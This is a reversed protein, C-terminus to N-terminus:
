VQCGQGLTDWVLIPELNSKTPFFAKLSDAHGPWDVLMRFESPYICIVAECVCTCLISFRRESQSHHIRELSEQQNFMLLVCHCSFILKFFGWQTLVIRQAAHNDVRVIKSNLDVLQRSLCLRQKGKIGINCESCDSPLKCKWLWVVACLDLNEGGATFVDVVESCMTIFSWARCGAIRPLQVNRGWKRPGGGKKSLSQLVTEMRTMNFVDWSFWLNLVRKHAGNWQKRLKIAKRFLVLIHESSGTLSSVYEMGTHLVCSSLWAHSQGLERVEATSELYRIWSM